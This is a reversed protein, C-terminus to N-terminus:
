VLLIVLQILQEWFIPKYQNMGANAFLLTPDNHPVVSSSPVYTHQQKKFYDLFTSRVKSATWHNSGNPTPITTNSSMRRLLTKIMYRITFNFHTNFIILLKKLTIHSSFFFVSFLFNKFFHRLHRSEHSM